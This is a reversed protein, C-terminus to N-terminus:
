SQRIPALREDRRQVWARGIVGPAELWPQYPSLESVTANEDGREERWQASRPTGGLLLSAAHLHSRTVANAPVDSQRLEQPPM